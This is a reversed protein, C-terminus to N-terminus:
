IDDLIKRADDEVDRAVAHDYNVLTGPNSHGTLKAIRDWSWGARSMQTIFYHRFNHFQVNKDIGAKKAYKKVAYEINRYSCKRFLYDDLKLKHKAVYQKILRVSEDNLLAEKEVRKGRKLVRTVMIKNDFNVDKVRVGGDWQKLKKDYVGYYEGLRRGTSKAVVFLMHFFDDEMSAEILKDMEEKSIPTPYTKVM